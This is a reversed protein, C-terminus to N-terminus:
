WILYNRGPLKTQFQLFNYGQSIFHAVNKLFQSNEYSWLIGCEQNEAQEPSCINLQFPWASTWRLHLVCWIHIIHMLQGGDYKTLSINSPMHWVHSCIHYLHESKQLTSAPFAATAYGSLQGVDATVGLHQWHKRGKLTTDQTMETWPILGKLPIVEDFCEIM